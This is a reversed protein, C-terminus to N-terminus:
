VIVVSLPIQSRKAAGSLSDVLCGTPKAVVVLLATAVRLSTTKYDLFIRYAFHFGSKKFVVQMYRYKKRIKHMPQTNYRHNINPQNVNYFCQYICNRILPFICLKNIRHTLYFITQHKILYM